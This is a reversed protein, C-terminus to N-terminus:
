FLTGSIWAGVSVTEEFTAKRGSKDIRQSGIPYGQIFSSVEILKSFVYTFGTQLPMAQLRWAKSEPDAARQTGYFPDWGSAILKKYIVETGLRFGFKDTFAYNASPSLSLTLENKLKPSFGARSYQPEAIDRNKYLYFRPQVLSFISWRTFTPTWSYKAFLGPTALTTRKEAIYGGGFPEPFFYPLDTNFAGTLKGHDTKFFTTSVGFRPSQWRLPRFDETERANNMVWQTRAQFDLAYSSNLAYRLSFNNNLLLGDDTPKGLANPTFDSEERLVAPGDFFSMYSLSFPTWLSSQLRSNSDVLQNKASFAIGSSGLFIIFIFVAYFKRNM